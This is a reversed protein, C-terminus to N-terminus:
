FRDGLGVCCFWGKGKGIWFFGIVGLGVCFWDSCSFGVVFGGSGLGGFLLVLEMVVFLWCGIGIGVVGLGM